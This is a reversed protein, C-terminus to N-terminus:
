CDGTLRMFVETSRRRRWDWCWRGGLPSWALGSCCCHGFRGIGRLKEVVEIATCEDALDTVGERFYGSAYNIVAFGSFQHDSKIDARNALRVLHFDFMLQGVFHGCLVALKVFVGAEVRRHMDACAAADRHEGFLM